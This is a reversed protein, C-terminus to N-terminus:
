AWDKLREYALHRLAQRLRSAFETTIITTLHRIRKEVEEETLQPSESPSLYKVRTQYQKLENEDIPSPIKSLPIWVFDGGYVNLGLERARALPLLVEIEGGQASEFLEFRLRDKLTAPLKELYSKLELLPDARTTPKSEIYYYVTKHSKKLKKVPLEKLLRHIHTESLGTIAKLQRPTYAGNRLLEELTQKANGRRMALM